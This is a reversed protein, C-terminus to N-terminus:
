FRSLRGNDLRVRDGPRLDTINDETITQYAGNNMRITVRFTENPKRTRRQVEHGAVAGGAAGVITAATQGGGGGIQHGILGGVIGGIVTGAINNSDGKQIVEIRDVVGTGNAVAPQSGYYPQEACGFFLPTTGVLAWTLFLAKM